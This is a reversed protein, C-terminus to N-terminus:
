SSLVFASRRLYSSCILKRKCCEPFHTCPKLSNEFAKWFYKRTRQFRNCSQRVMLLWFTRLRRHHCNSTIIPSPLGIESIRKHTVLSSYQQSAAWSDGNLIRNLSDMRKNTSLNGKTSTRHSMHLFVFSYRFLGSLCRDCGYL